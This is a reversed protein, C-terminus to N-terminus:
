IMDIISIPEYCISRTDKFIDFSYYRKGTNSLYFIYGVVLDKLLSDFDKHNYMDSLKILYFSNNQLFKNIESKVIEYNKKRVSRTSNRYSICLTPNIISSLDYFLYNCIFERAENTPFLYNMLKIKREKEM